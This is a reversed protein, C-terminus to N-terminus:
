RRCRRCRSGRPCCPVDRRGAGAHDGGADHRALHRAADAGAPLHRGAQGDDARVADRSSIVVEIVRSGKEELVGQMVQQGWMIISIYLIFFLISPSCRPEWAGRPAAGRPRSRRRRGAEGVPEARRGAGSRDGGRPLAGAAGGHLHRGEAGAQTFVNSVSRAHYEVPKDQFVGPGIWVWADIEKAMVRRDLDARQATRDAAPPETEADFSVM